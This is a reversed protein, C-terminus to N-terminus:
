QRKLLHLSGNFTTLNITSEGSGNTATFLRSQGSLKQMNVKIPFKTEFSGHSNVTAKIQFPFDVPLALLVTGNLSNLNYSGGRVFSDFVAIEGSNSTVEINKHSINKLVISGSASKFKLPDSFDNPKLRAAVLNGEVSELTIRGSSDEALLDSALSSIDIEETINRLEVDGSVNELKVRALSDFTFDGERSKVAVRANVPVEISVTDGRLCEAHSQSAGKKRGLGQVIIWNPKKNPSSENRQMIKFNIGPTESDEIFVRVEERQWGRVNVTRALSCFSVNVKSDVDIAKEIPLDNEGVSRPQIGPKVKKQTLKGSKGPFKNEKITQAALLM